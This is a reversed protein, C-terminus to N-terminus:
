SNVPCFELDISPNQLEILVRNVGMQLLSAINMECVIKPAKFTFGVDVWGEVTGPNHSL